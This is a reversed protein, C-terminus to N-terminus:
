DNREIGSNVMIVRRSMFKGPGQSFVLTMFQGSSGEALLRNDNNLLGFSVRFPRSGPHVDLGVSLSDFKLDFAYDIGSETEDFSYTASNLAARIALKESVAYSYEIGFGLMGLRAGVSHGEAFAPGSLIMLGIAVGIGNANRM